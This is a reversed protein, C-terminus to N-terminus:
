ETIALSRIQYGLLRFSFTRSVPSGKFNGSVTGHVKIVEGAEPAKGLEVTYDLQAKIARWWDGIAQRGTYTQGEDNVEGESSFALVLAKDDNNKEADFYAQVPQPLKM